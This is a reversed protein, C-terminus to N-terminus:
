FLSGPSQSLWRLYFVIWVFWGVGAGGTGLTGLGDKPVVTRVSSMWFSKYEHARM